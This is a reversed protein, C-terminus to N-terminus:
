RRMLVGIDHDKTPLVRHEPFAQALLSEDGPHVAFGAQRGDKRARRCNPRPSFHIDHTSMVSIARATFKKV